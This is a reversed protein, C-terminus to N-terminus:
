AAQDRGSASVESVVGLAFTINFDSTPPTFGPLLGFANSVLIFIFFSSLLPVYKEAGHGVVSDALGGIAEILLEFVNRASLTEDPVIASDKSLESRAKLALVLLIGMILMAIAFYEWPGHPIGILGTWTVPHEM